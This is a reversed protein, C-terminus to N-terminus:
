EGRPAAAAGSLWGAQGAANRRVGEKLRAIARVFETSTTPVREGAAREESGAGGDDAAGEEEGEM